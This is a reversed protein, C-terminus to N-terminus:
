VDARSEQRFRLMQVYTAHEDCHDCLSRWLLPHPLSDPHAARVLGFAELLSMGEVEKIAAVSRSVGAGCAILTVNGADHQEKVFATSKELVGPPLPNGDEFPLHLSVIGPHPVPEAIQLMASVGSTTLLPLHHTDALKGVLLYPRILRM